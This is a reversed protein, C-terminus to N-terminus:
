EGVWAMCIIVLETEALVLKNFPRAFAMFVNSPFFTQPTPNCVRKCLICSDASWTRHCQSPSSSPHMPLKPLLLGGTTNPSRAWIVGAVLELQQLGCTGELTLQTCSLSDFMTKYSFFVEQPLNALESPQAAAMQRSQKKPGNGWHIMYPADCQSSTIAWVHLEWRPTLKRQVLLYLLYSRAYRGPPLWQPTPAFFIQETQM